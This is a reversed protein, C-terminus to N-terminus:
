GGLSVDVRDVLWGDQVPALTCFVAAPPLPQRWRDTGLADRTVVSARYVVTPRDAPLPDGAYPQLGTTIVAHHSAWTPFDLSQGHGGVLEAALRPTGYRQAARERADAESTDRTADIAFYATAFHDCVQQPPGPQTSPATVSHPPNAVSRALTSHGGGGCAAFLLIAASIALVPLSAAPPRASPGAASGVATM